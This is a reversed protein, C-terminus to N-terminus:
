LGALTLRTLLALGLGALAAALLGAAGLAVALLLLLLRLLRLVILGVEGALLLDLVGGLILLLGLVLDVLAVIVGGGLLLGLGLLLQLLGALLQFFQEALQALLFDLADQGRQLAATLLHQGHLLVDAFARDAQVLDHLLAATRLDVRGVSLAAQLQRVLL